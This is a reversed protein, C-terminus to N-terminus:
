AAQASWEVGGAQGGQLDSKFYFLWCVKQCSTLFLFSHCLFTLHPENGVGLNWWRQEAGAPAGVSNM